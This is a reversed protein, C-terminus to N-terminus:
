KPLVDGYRRRAGLYYIIQLETTLIGGNCKWTKTAITYLTAGFLLDIDSTM